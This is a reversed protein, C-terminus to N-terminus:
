PVVVALAVATLALQSAIQTWDRLGRAFAGTPLKYPVIIEDGPYLRLHNFKDGTFPGNVNNAAVVIGNARLVFAHHMDSQPKGKGAMDLYAGSKLHPNFIFSGPSYVNGVVSVTSPTHPVILRDNDEMIMDPFDTLKKDTPRVPLAVRGSARASRLQGLIGEQLQALGQADGGSLSAAISLASQRAQVEMTNVLQDLSNQQEIRASERILQSGYVYANLTLGGARQLVSQLTENKDLKYVGPRAVEGEIVVYRAREDEPLNIDRQSFITVIDGPELELDSAEDHEIIAKRPSFWLLKSTLDIPNVRQIIAYDWNIEPAYRRLDATVNRATRVTTTPREETSANKQSGLPARESAKSVEVDPTTEQEAADCPIYTITPQELTSAAGPTQLVGQPASQPLTQSTAPQTAPQTPSNSQKGNPLCRVNFGPRVPYETSHGEGIAARDLWYKRTLLAEPNPILDRIRMGSKWPYRGPNAVNGRLTVTDQFSPVISLVRVIDGDQLPFIRSSDDFPFELTKRSQHDVVREITIRGTDALTSMGGSYQILDGLSTKEKLEYIAPNNVSGSIAVLPGVPAIYIVDGPQLRVDKSKDGKILLDYFDFDTVTTGDRHVVIHRLSGQPTPGGSTFIANVLTSLSSITYTGPYRANGVIMVQISRLRGVSATLNFNRFMKSIEGKLFSELEGYHVGAVSIEGVRPIYIQGSRDVTTRLDAELQGWIRIQLEDGPGIIYDSPVQLQDMPAFTSPSQSFLSQGFLPLPRGASDAAMQEFETHPWTPTSPRRIQSPNISGSRPFQSEYTGLPNRLQPVQGTSAPNQGPQVGTAGQIQQSCQPSTAQMPDSCDVVIGPANSQPADTTSQSLCLVTSLLFFVGFRGLNRM